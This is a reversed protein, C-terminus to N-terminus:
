KDVEQKPPRKNYFMKGSHWRDWAIAWLDYFMDNPREGGQKAFTDKDVDYDYTGDLGGRLLDNIGRRWAFRERGCHLCRNLYDEAEYMRQGHCYMAM